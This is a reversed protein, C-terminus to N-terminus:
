QPSSAWPHPGSTDTTYDTVQPPVVPPLEPPPLVPVTAATKKKQVTAAAKKKQVAAKTSRNKKQRENVDRLHFEYACRDSCLGRNCVPCWKTTSKTVGDRKRCQVCKRQTRGSKAANPITYLGCLQAGATLVRAAAPTREEDMIKRAGPNHDYLLQEAVAM